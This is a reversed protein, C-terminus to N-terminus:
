KKVDPKNTNFTYYLIFAALWTFFNYAIHLNFLTNLAWIIGFPMITFLCLFIIIITISGALLKLM